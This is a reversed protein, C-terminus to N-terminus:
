FLGPLVLYFKYSIFNFSIGGMNRLVLWNVKGKWKGGEGTFGSLYLCVFFVRMEGFQCCFGGSMSFIENKMWRTEEFTFGRSQSSTFILIKHKRPQEDVRLVHIISGATLMLAANCCSFLSRQEPRCHHPVFIFLWSFSWVTTQKPWFVFLPVWLHSTLSVWANLCTCVGESYISANVLAPLCAFWWKWKM